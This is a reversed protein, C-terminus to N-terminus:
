GRGRPLLAGRGTVVRGDIMFPVQGPTGAADGMIARVMRASAETEVYRLVVIDGPAFHPQSTM